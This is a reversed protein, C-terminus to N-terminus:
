PSEKADAFPFPLYPQGASVMDFPSSITYGWGPFVEEVGKAFATVCCM